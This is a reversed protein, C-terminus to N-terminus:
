VIEKCEKKSDKWICIALDQYTYQPKCNSCFVEFRLIQKGLPIDKIDCEEDYESRGCKKTLIRMKDYKNEGSSINNFYINNVYTWNNILWIQVPGSNMKGINSVQLEFKEGKETLKKGRVEVIDFASIHPITKSRINLEIEPRIPQLYKEQSSHIYWQTYVQLIALIIIFLTLIPILWDNRRQSNISKIFYYDKIVKKPSYKEGVSYSTLFPYERSIKGLLKKQKKFNKKFKDYDKKEKWKKFKNIKDKIKKVLKRM